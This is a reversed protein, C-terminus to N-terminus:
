PASGRKTRLSLKVLNLCVITLSVSCVASESNDSGSQPVNSVSTSVNQKLMKSTGSGTVRGRAAGGRSDVRREEVAWVLTRQESRTEMM